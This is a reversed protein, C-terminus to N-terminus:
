EELKVIVDGVVQNHKLDKYSQVKRIKCTRGPSIGNEFLVGKLGMVFNNGCVIEKGTVIEVVTCYKEVIDGTYLPEGFALTMNTKTGIDTIHKNSCNGRLCPKFGDEEKEDDFLRDVALKSGYRFDFADEECCITKSRKVVKGNEKLVANIENDKRTIHISQEKEEEFMEETWSWFIGKLRYTGDSYSNSIVYSKGCYEKMLHVVCEGTLYISGDDGVGFEKEMSEWSRVRVRDRVKYKAM